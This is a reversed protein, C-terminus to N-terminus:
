RAASHRCLAISSAACSSRCSSSWAVAYSSRAPCARGSTARRVVRREVAGRREAGSWPSCAASTASGAVRCGDLSGSEGNSAAEGAAWAAETSSSGPVVPWPSRPFPSTPSARAAASLDHSSGHALPMRGGAVGPEEQEGFACGSRQVVANGPPLLLGYPATHPLHQEDKPPLSGPERRLLGFQATATATAPTV